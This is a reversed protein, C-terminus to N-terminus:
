SREGSLRDGVDQLYDDDIVARDCRFLHAVDDRVMRTRSQNTLGATARRCCTVGTCLMGPACHEAESVVVARRVSFPGLSECLSEFTTRVGRGTDGEAASAGQSLRGLDDGM